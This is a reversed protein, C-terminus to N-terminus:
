KWAIEPKGEARYDSMLQHVPGLSTDPWTAVLQMHGIVVRNAQYLTNGADHWAKWFHIDEDTRGDGWEGNPDPHHLFWPKAIKKLSSVRIATLGFHGSAIPLLDGMLAKRSIQPSCKGDAGKMTALITDRGRAMQMACVADAQPNAQILWLLDDVDKPTFVSDYDVSLVYEAGADVCEQIAATMTQGWFVGQRIRVPMNFRSASEVLAHATDTFCLRPMSLIAHTAKTSAPGRKVGKLNLSVEYAACDKIESKWPAVSRLGAKYMAMRLCDENFVAGHRDNEDTHGGMLFMEVPWEKGSQYANIIKDFDPVAIKLEGGPKLVRVWESIVKETDRHSFHELIHSAYIADVSNDPFKLPYVEGGDKRDINTYGPVVTDGSGLNLRICKDIESKEAM